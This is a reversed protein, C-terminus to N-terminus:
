MIEEMVKRGRVGGGAGGGHEWDQQREFTIVDKEKILQQM